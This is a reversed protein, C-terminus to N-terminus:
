YTRRIKQPDLIFQYGVPNNGCSFQSNYSGVIRGEHVFVFEVVMRQLRTYENFFSIYESESPKLEGIETGNIKMVITFHTANAIQVMTTSKWLPNPFDAEGSTYMEPDPYIRMYQSSYGSRGDPRKVDNMRITWESVRGASVTLSRGAFGVFDTKEPDSFLRALVPLQVYRHRPTYRDSVSAGPGLDAVHENMVIIEAFYPTENTVINEAKPGLGLIKSFHGSLRINIDTQASVVVACFFFILFLATKKM